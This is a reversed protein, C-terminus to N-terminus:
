DNKAHKFHISDRRVAAFNFDTKGKIQWSDYLRTNNITIPETQNKAEGTEPLLDQHFIDNIVMRDVQKNTTFM